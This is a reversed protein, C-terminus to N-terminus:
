SPINSNLFSAQGAAASDIRQQMQSPLADMAKGFRMADDDTTDNSLTGPCYEQCTCLTPVRQVFEQLRQAVLTSMLGARVGVIAGAISVEVDDDPVAVMKRLAATEHVKCVWAKAGSLVGM